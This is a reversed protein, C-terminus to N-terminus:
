EYGETNYLLLFRTNFGTYVPDDNAELDIFTIDGVFGTYAARILASRDVCRVGQCIIGLNSEELSFYVNDGLTRLTIKCQQENLVTIIEQNPVADIPIQFEAM